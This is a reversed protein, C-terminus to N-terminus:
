SLQCLLHSKIVPNCTRNRCPAAKNSESRQLVSQTKALSVAENGATLLSSQGARNPWDRSGTAQSRLLVNEHSDAGGFLPSM